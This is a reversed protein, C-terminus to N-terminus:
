RRKKMDQAHVQKRWSQLDHLMNTTLGPLSDALNNQEAPDNELNYLELAGETGYNSKEFWEILKYSGQRIAGQPGLGASHYHPYHWYLARRSLKNEPNLLLPVLSVGDIDKTIVKVDALDNFTPFFDNSIVMEDCISGPKVNGPWRIILPM